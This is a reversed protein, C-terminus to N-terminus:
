SDFTDRSFSSVGIRGFTPFFAASSVYGPVRSNDIIFINTRKIKNTIKSVLFSM